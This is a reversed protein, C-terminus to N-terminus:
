EKEDQNDSDEDDEDKNIMNQASRYVNLSGAAGGFIVGIALFWPRSDLFSDLAYGMLAGILTAVILETGVKFALSMGQRFAPDNKM